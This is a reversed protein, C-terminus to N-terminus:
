ELYLFALGPFRNFDTDFSVVRCDRSLALAALYCDTWLRHPTDHDRSLKMFEVDVEPADNIFGVGEENRYRQYINWAELNDLPRSLVKPHTSLRLFALATVRCFAIKPSSQNRWYAVAGDHHAHNEDVMALWVNVDPLDTM